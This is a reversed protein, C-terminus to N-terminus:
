QSRISPTKVQVLATVCGFDHLDVLSLAAGFNAVLEFQGDAIRNVVPTSGSVGNALDSEVDRWPEPETVGKLADPLSMLAADVHMRHLRTPALPGHKAELGELEAM